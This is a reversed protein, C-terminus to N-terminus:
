KHTNKPKVCFCTHPEFLKFQFLTLFYWFTILWLDIDISLLAVLVLCLCPCVCTVFVCVSCLQFCFLLMMYVMQYGGHKWLYRVVPLYDCALVLASIPIYTQDDTIIWSQLWLMKASRFDRNIISAVLSCKLFRSLFCKSGFKKDAYVYSSNSSVLPTILIRIDFFLSRYIVCM